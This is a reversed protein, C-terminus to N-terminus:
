VTKDVDLKVKSCVWLKRTDMFDWRFEDRKDKTGDWWCKEKEGCEWIMVELEEGLITRKLEMRESLEGSLKPELDPVKDERFASM